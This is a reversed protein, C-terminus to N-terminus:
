ALLLFCPTKKKLLFCSTKKELLFCSAKEEEEEEEKEEELFGSLLGGKDGRPPAGPLSIASKGGGSGCAVVFLMVGRVTESFNRFVSSSLFM